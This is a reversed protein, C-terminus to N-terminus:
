WTHKFKLLKKFSIKKNEKQLSPKYNFPNNKYETYTKLFKGIKIEPIERYKGRMVKVADLIPNKDIEMKNFVRQIRLKCYDHFSMIVAHFLYKHVEETPARVSLYSAKKFSSTISKALEERKKDSAYVYMFPLLGLCSLIQERAIFMRDPRQLSSCAQSARIVKKLKNHCMGIEDHSDIKTNIEAGLFTVVEKNKGIKSIKLKKTKDENLCLGLKKCDRLMFEECKENVKNIEHKM